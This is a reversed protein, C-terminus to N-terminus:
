VDCPRAVRLANKSDAIAAVDIAFHDHPVRAIRNTFDRPVHLLDIRARELGRARETQSGAALVVLNIEIFPTRRHGQLWASEGEETAAERAVERAVRRAVAQAKRLRAHRLVM